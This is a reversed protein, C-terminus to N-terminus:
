GNLSHASEAVLNRKKRGPDFGQRGDRRVQRPAPVELGPGDEPQDVLREPVQRPVVRDLQQAPHVRAPQGRQGLVLSEKGPEVGQRAPGLPLLRPVVGPEMAGIGFRIAPRDGIEAGLEPEVVRDRDVGAAQAHEGAVVQLRGRIQAQRQHADPEHIGPAIEILVQGHIAPLLVPVLPEVEGDSWENRHPALAPLGPDRGHAGGAPGHPDAGPFQHHPPVREIQEVGVELLVLRLVPLQAALQIAAAQVVPQALLPDQADASDPRQPGHPQIGAHPM